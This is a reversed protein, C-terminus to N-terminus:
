ERVALEVGIVKFARERSEAQTGTQEGDEYSNWWDTRAMETALACATGGGTRGISRSSAKM